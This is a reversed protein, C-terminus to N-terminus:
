WPLVDGNWLHFSGIDDITLGNILDIMTGIASRPALLNREIRFKIDEPVTSPDANMYDETDVTGPAIVAVIVGRSKVTEGYSRMLMNMGAKSAWYVPALPPNVGMNTISSHTSSMVAIKKQESAAVHELFAESVYLQGIVNVKFIDEAWEYDVAGFKNTGYTWSNIAANLLLVDIPTDKYKEALADVEPYDTIDLAEITLNPYDEALAKLQDAKSPTRCTAIVTWGREAYDHALLIGHGRNAGTILVTTGNQAYAPDADITLLFALVLATLSRQALIAILSLHTQFNHKM